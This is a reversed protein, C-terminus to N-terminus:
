VKSPKNYSSVLEQYLSNVHRRLEKLSFTIFYKQEAPDDYYYSNTMIYAQFYRFTGQVLWYSVKYEDRVKLKMLLKNQLHFAESLENRNDIKGNVFKMLEDLIVKVEKFSKSIARDLKKVSFQKNDSSSALLAELVQEKDTFKSFDNLESLPQPTCGQIKAGDSCNHVTVDPNLQLLMEINARSMDFIATTYVSECFNGEVKMDETMTVANDFGEDYYISDKSHHQESSKYGLDVGTLYVNKFGLSTVVALATNSVTPNSYDPAAYM